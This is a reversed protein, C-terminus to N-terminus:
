NLTHGLDGRHPPSRGSAEWTLGWHKHPMCTALTAHRYLELEIPHKATQQNQGVGELARPLAEEEEHMHHEERQCLDLEPM